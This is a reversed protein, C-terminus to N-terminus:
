FGPDIRTDGDCYLAYLMGLINNHKKYFEQRLNLFIQGVPEGALFQDFFRKAWEKAFIAPIECETGIVGRAGKAM